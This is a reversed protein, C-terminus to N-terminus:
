DRQANKIMGKIHQIMCTPCPNKVSFKKLLKGADM